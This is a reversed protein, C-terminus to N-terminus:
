GFITRSKPVISIIASILICIMFTIVSIFIIYIFTYLSASLPLAYIKVYELVFIHMFFIKFSYDSLRKVSSKAAEPVNIKQFLIFAAVASIAVNPAFYLYATENAVGAQASFYWTAFFTGAVGLCYVSLAALWPVRQSYSVSLFAGILFYGGYGMFGNLQLISIFPYKIYVTLCTFIFWISIIYYRMNPNTKTSVYIYKFIPFIIYLGTIMYVFWLHYMAPRSVLVSLDFKRLSIEGLFYLYFISWTFLPILVKKLRKFIDEFSVTEGDDMGILLYGSIMVFLPVSCRVLSDLLNVSGWETISIKGYQYFKEGCSHIVIVGFIASIRCIDAWMERRLRM